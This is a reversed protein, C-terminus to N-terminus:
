KQEVGIFYILHLVISRFYIIFSYKLFFFSYSVQSLPVGTEISLRSMSYSSRLHRVLTNLTSSSDTPLSSLLSTPDIVLLLGYYPRSIYFFFKINQNYSNFHFKSSINNLMQVVPFM